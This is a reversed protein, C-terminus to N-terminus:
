AIKTSSDVPTIINQTPKKPVLHIGVPYDVAGGPEVQLSIGLSQPVLNGQAGDLSNASGGPLNRRRSELSNSWAYNPGGASQDSASNFLIPKPYHASVVDSHSDLPVPMNVHAAVTAVFSAGKTQPEMDEDFNDVMLKEEDTISDYWSALESFPVFKGLFAVDFGAAIKLVNNFTLNGYDPDAARSIAGQTLGSRDALEAQSWQRQKLLVRMQTPIGRKLQAAVFAERYKKSRALKSWLNSLANM